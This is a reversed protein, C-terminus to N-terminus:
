LIINQTGNFAISSQDADLVIKNSSNQRGLDNASSTQIKNGKNQNFAIEEEDEGNYTSQLKQQLGNFFNLINVENSENQTKRISEDKFIEVNSETIVINNDKIHEKLKSIVFTALSESFANSANQIIPPSDDSINQVEDMPKPTKSREDSYVIATILTKFKNLNDSLLENRKESETLKIAAKEMTLEYHSIKQRLQNFEDEFKKTENVLVENKSLVSKYEDELRMKDGQLKIKEKIIQEHSTEASTLKAKLSEIKSNKQALKAQVTNAVEIVKTNEQSKQL